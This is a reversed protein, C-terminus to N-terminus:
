IRLVSIRSHVPTGLTPPPALGSLSFVTRNASLVRASPSLAENATRHGASALQFQPVNEARVIDTDPHHHTSCDPHHNEQNQPSDSHGMPMQDCGDPDSSHQLESPCIGAACMVSCVSGYSMTVLFIVAVIATM